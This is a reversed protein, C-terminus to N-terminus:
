AQRCPPRYKPRGCSARRPRWPRRRPGHRRWGPRSPSARHTRPPAGPSRRRREFLPPRPIALRRDHFAEVPILADELDVFARRFDPLGHKRTGHALLGLLRDGGGAGTRGVDRGALIGHFAAGISNKDRVDAAEHPRHRDAVDERRAVIPLWVVLGRIFLGQPLFDGAHNALLRVDADVDDAVAFVALGAPDAVDGLPEAAEDMALEARAVVLLVRDVHDALGLFERFEVGGVRRDLIVVPQRRPLRLGGSLLRIERGPALVEPDPFADRRDGVLSLGGDAPVDVVELRRELADVDRAREHRDGRRHARAPQPEVGVVLDSSSITTASASASFSSYLAITSAPNM